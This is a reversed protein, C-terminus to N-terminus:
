LGQVYWVSMFNSEQVDPLINWPKYNCTKWSILIQKLVFLINEFPLIKPVPDLSARSGVLQEM